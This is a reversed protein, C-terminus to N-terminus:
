STLIVFTTKSGVDWKICPNNTLFINRKWELICKQASPIGSSFSARDGLFFAHKKSKKVGISRILADLQLIVNESENSASLELSGM